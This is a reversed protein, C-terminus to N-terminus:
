QIWFDYYSRLASEHNEISQSTHEIFQDWCDRNTYIESDGLSEWEEYVCHSKLKVLFNNLTEAGYKNVLFSYTDERYERYLFTEWLRCFSVDISESFNDSIKIRDIVEPFNTTEQLCFRAWRDELELKESARESEIFNLTFGGELCYGCM